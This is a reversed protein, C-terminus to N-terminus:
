KIRTFKKYMKRLLRRIEIYSLVSFRAKTSGLGVKISYASNKLIEFVDEDTWDDGAFFVFDYSDDNLWNRVATGKNISSNKVEIVKSGQLISLNMNETLHILSERLESSRVDGLRHETKRFHWAISFDKEELFSGPTREVYTEMISRVKNKWETPLTETTFWGMNGKKLWAGHEAILDIGLKGFWKDLTKRVRGSVIVLKNRNDSSLQKLLSLLMRDPKADAPKESFPVLTGDYDLLILRKVSERYKKLLCQEQEKNIKKAIRKHQINKVSCLMNIFDEAWKHIDYRKLRQRMIRMREQKTKMDMELADGISSVIKDRNYPNISIAEGLEQAAGAMKSLILVGNEDNKTAIYEKAVLNMGDRLPTVLAIDSITYLAVVRELSLSRNLYWIPTWSMSGFRGNIRGILEDIRRKLKIYREVGQRSPVAVFIYTVKRRYQPNKALFQEFAELRGPIGKTYDLRDISLIIKKNELRGKIQSIIKKVKKKSVLNSFKDFDIGMPFADALITRNKIEINGFTNDYGILSRVSELFHHVYSYTHFGILDAGLLGTLISEGQPLLKFIESSPFPIHLFFGIKTDPRKERIMQPLLMLHYDHIWIIDEKKAAHIVMDAFRQNIRKYVSWYKKNNVMYNPFYHFLPWLMKNSYGYYYNEIDYKSLFVPFCDEKKLAADFEKELGTIKNKMIGPWGIWKANMSKYFSSLGTALGGSSAQIKLANDSRLITIPLRNSVIILKNKSSFMSYDLMKKM